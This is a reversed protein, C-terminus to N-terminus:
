LVERTLRNIEEILDLCQKKSNLLENEIDNLHTQTSNLQHRFQLSDQNNQLLLKEFDSRIQMTNHNAQDRERIAKQIQFKVSDTTQFLNM